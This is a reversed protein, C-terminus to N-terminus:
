YNYFFCTLLITDSKKKNDYEFGWYWMRGTVKVVMANPPVTRMAKFVDWGYFFMMLTLVLPIVTWLIELTTSGTINESKPHRKYNYRYLFYLMTGTVLALFFVSVAVIFIFVNDVDQIIPNM